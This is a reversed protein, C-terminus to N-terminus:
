MHPGDGVQIKGKFYRLKLETSRDLFEEIGIGCDMGCPAVMDTREQTFM